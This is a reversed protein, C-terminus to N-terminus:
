VSTYKEHNFFCSFWLFGPPPHPTPPHPSSTSFTTVEIRVLDTSDFACSQLETNTCSQDGDVCAYMCCGTSLVAVKWQEGDVCACMCCGTSLVAVKWQEGDVCACM